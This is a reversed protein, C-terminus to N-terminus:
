SENHDSGILQKKVLSDYLKSILYTRLRLWSHPISGGQHIVKTELRVVNDKVVYRYKKGDREFSVANKARTASHGQRTLLYQYIAEGKEKNNM